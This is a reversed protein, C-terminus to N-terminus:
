ATVCALRRRAMTSSMGLIVAVIRAICWSNDVPGNHNKRQHRLSHGLSNRRGSRFRSDRYRHTQHDRSYEQLMPNPTLRNYHHRFANVCDRSSPMYWPAKQPAIGRCQPRGRASAKPSGFRGKELLARLRGRCSRDGSHARLVLTRDSIRSRIIFRV